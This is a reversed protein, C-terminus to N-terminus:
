SPQVVVPLSVAPLVSSVKRTEFNGDADNDDERRACETVSEHGIEDCKRVKTGTEM